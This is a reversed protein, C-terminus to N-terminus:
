RRIMLILTIAMIAFMSRWIAVNTIDIFAVVIIIVTFLAIFGMLLDDIWNRM